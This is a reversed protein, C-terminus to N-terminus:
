GQMKQLLYHMGARNSLEYCIYHIGINGVLQNSTKAIDEFLELTIARCYILLIQLAQFLPLMIPIM